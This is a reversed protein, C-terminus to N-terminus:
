VPIEPHPWRGPDLLKKVKSFRHIIMSLRQELNSGVYGATGVPVNCVSMGHLPQGDVLVVEAGDHIVGEPIDGRLRHWELDQHAADIYCYSKAPQLELGIVALDTKLQENEPFIVSPPGMAYNDDIIATAAGGVAM